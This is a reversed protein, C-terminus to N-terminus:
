RQVSFSAVMAVLQMAQTGLCCKGRLLLYLPLLPFPLASAQSFGGVVIRSIPVEKSEAEVLGDLYEVAAKVGAHDVDGQM